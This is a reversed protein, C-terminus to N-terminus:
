NKVTVPSRLSHSRPFDNACKFPQPECHAALDAAMDPKDM